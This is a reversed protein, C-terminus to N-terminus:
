LTRRNPALTATALSDRWIRLVGRTAAASGAKRRKSFPRVSTHLVSSKECCPRPNDTGGSLSMGVPLRTETDSNRESSSPTKGATTVNLPVPRRPTCNSLRLKCCCASSADSVKELASAHIEVQPVACRSLGSRDSPLTTRIPRRPM